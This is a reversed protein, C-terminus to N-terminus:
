FSHGDFDSKNMWGLYFAEATDCLRECLYDIGIKTITKETGDTQVQNIYKYGHFYDEDGPKTLVFEDVSVKLKPNQVDTSGNHLVKCRLSYCMEGRFTQADFGPFLVDFDDPAFHNNVWDIYMTRNSNQGAPIGNEVQCCIDPFTLALALAAYYTKNAVADRVDKIKNLM